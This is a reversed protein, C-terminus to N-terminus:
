YQICCWGLSTKGDGPHYCGNRSPSIKKYYEGKEIQEASKWVEKIAGLVEDIGSISLFTKFQGAFSHDADDEMESSSRIAYSKSPDCLVELKKRLMQELGVPDKRYLIRMEETLIITRPIRFKNKRLHNLSWAKKGIRDKKRVSDIEKIM